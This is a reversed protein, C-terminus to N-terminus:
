ETQAEGADEAETTEEEEVEEEKIGLATNPTVPNGDKDLTLKFIRDTGHLMSPINAAPVEKGNGVIAYQDIEFVGTIENTQANHSLSISPISMKDKYNFIYNLFPRIDKYDCTFSVTTPAMVATLPDEHEGNYNTGGETITSTQEQNFTLVSMYIPNESLEIGRLFMITNELKIGGSYEKIMKDRAENLEKIKAEYEPQKLSLDKLYNYRENLTALEADMSKIDENKPKIFFFIPLAIIAVLLVLLILKKDRDSIKM